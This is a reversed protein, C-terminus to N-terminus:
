KRVVESSSDPLEATATSRLARPPLQFEPVSAAILKSMREFVADEEGPRCGTFYSVYAWRGLVGTRLVDWMLTLKYAQYSPTSATDAVFWFVYLGHQQLKEGNPGDMTGSVTWRAVQLSYPHLGGIPIEATAKGIQTFGQGALCYDAKHISTRDTGMLIVTAYSGFGDPAQYYKEAFSTDKPLYGLVQDSEPVNTSTFDLVQEPLDIKVMVTNPLPTAKIAPAGLRRNSKLWVLAGAAGAILVLVVILVLQKQNRM